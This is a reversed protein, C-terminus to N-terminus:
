ELSTSCSTLAVLPPVGIWARGVICRMMRMHTRLIEHPKKRVETNEARQLASGIGMRRMDAAHRQVYIKVDVCVGQVCRRAM